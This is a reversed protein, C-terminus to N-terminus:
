DKKAIVRDGVQVKDGIGLTGAQIYAIARSDTVQTVILDCVKKDGRMVTLQSGKVVRNKDGRAGANIEVFGLAPEVYTVECELTASPKKRARQDILAQELTIQEEQENLANNLVEIERERAEIQLATLLNHKKTEKTPDVLGVAFDMVESPNPCGYAAVPYLKPGVTDGDSKIEISSIDVASDLGTEHRDAFVQIAANFENVHARTENKQAAIAKEVKKTLAEVRRIDDKIYDDWIEGFARFTKERAQQNKEILTLTDNYKRMRKFDYQQKLQSSILASAKWYHHFDDKDEIFMELDYIWGKCTREIRRFKSPSFIAMIVGILIVLIISSLIFGM